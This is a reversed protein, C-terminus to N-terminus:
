KSLTQGETQFHRLQAMSLYRLLKVDVLKLSYLEKLKKNVMTDILFVMTM